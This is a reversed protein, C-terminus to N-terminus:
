DEGECTWFRPTSETAGVVYVFDTDDNAVINHANGFFRKAATPQFVQFGTSNRLLTLDFVQFSCTPNECLGSKKVSADFNQHSHM